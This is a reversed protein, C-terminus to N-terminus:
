GFRGNFTRKIQHIQKLEAASIPAIRNEAVLIRLEDRTYISWPSAGAEVLAAKTQEDACFFVTESLANSRVMVFPLQLLALLQPKHLSLMTAFDEPCRNRPNVVLTFPAEFSLNLGLKTAEAFVEIPTQATM